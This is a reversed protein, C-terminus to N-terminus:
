CGSTGRYITDTSRHGEHVTFISLLIGTNSIGANNVLIDIQGEASIITQVVERVNDDDTVDLALTRINDQTFGKMAEIRRATAYVICGKKCAFAECRFLRLTNNSGYLHLGISSTAYLAFGIGGKSCGTVLVVVKSCEGASM